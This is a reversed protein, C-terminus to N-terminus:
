MFLTSCNSLLLNFTFLGLKKINNESIANCENSSRLYLTGPMYLKWDSNQQVSNRANTGSGNEDWGSGKKIGLRFGERGWGSVKEDCDWFKEDEHGSGKENGVQVQCIGLSFGEWGWGLGKEDEALVM